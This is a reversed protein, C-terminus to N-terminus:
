LAVFRVGAASPFDYKATSFPAGFIGLQCGKAVKVLLSYAISEANRHMLPVEPGDQHMLM